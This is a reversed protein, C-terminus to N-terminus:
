FGVVNFLILQSLRGASRCAVPLAILLLGVVHSCEFVKENGIRLRKRQIQTIPTIQPYILDPPPIAVSPWHKM